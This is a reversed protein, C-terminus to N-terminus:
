VLTAHNIKNKGKIKNKINNAKNIKIDKPVIASCDKVEELSSSSLM